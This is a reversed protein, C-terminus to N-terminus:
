KKSISYLRTYRNTTKTLLSDAYMILICSTTIAIKNAKMFGYGMTLGAFLIVIHGAKSPTHIDEESIAGRKKMLWVNHGIIAYSLVIIYVFSVFFRISNDFKM